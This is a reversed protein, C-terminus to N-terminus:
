RFAMTTKTSTWSRSRTLTSHMMPFSITEGLVGLASEGYSLSVDRGVHLYQERWNENSGESVAHSPDRFPDPINDDAQTM